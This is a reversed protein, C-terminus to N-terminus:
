ALQLVVTCRPLLPTSSSSYSSTFYLAGATRRGLSGALLVAVAIASFRCASRALCALTHKYMTVLINREPRERHFTFM